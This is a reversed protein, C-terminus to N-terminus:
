QTIESKQYWSGRIRILDFDDWKVFHFGKDEENGNWLFDSRLKDLKDVLGVPIPFMSMVCTHLSDLVANMLFLRIGVEM